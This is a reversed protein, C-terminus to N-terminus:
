SGSRALEERLKEVQMEEAALLTQLTPLLHMRGREGALRLADRVTVLREEADALRRHAPALSAAMRKQSGLPWDTEM